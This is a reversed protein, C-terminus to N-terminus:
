CGSMSMRASDLAQVPKTPFTPDRRPLSDPPAQLFANRDRQMGGFSSGFLFSLRTQRTALGRLWFSIDVERGLRHEKEAGGVHSFTAIDSSSSTARMVSYAL